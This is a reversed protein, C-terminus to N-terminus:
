SRAPAAWSRSNTKLTFGLQQQDLVERPHPSAGLRFSGACSRQFGAHLSAPIGASARLGGTAQPRVAREQREKRVTVLPQWTSRVM